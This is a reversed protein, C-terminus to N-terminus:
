RCSHEMTFETAGTQFAQEMQPQLKQMMEETCEQLLALRAPNGFARVTTTEIVNGDEDYDVTKELYAPALLTVLESPDQNLLLFLSLSLVLLGMTLLVWWLWSPVSLQQIRSM